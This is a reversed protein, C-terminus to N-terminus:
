GPPVRVMDTHAEPLKETASVIVPPVLPAVALIVLLGELLEKAIVKGEPVNLLPSVIVPPVLPALVVKDAATSRVFTCAVISINDATTVLSPM